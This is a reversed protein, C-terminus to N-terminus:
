NMAAPQRRELLERAAAFDLAALAQDIADLDDGLWPALAVRHEALLDLVGLDGAAVGAQLRALVGPATQQPRAPSPPPQHLAQAEALLLQLGGDLQAGFGDIWEQELAQGARLRQEGVRGWQALRECALTAALGKFAHLADLAQRMALPQAAMWRRLQAPLPRAQAAFSSATRLYLDSRGQFRQLGAQLDLGQALARQQAAADISLPLPARVAIAEAGDPRVPERGTLRLVWAVLEAVEFPKSLHADMGAQLCAERDSTLANASLAIIPLSQLEPRARIARAASLGDLVPMQLDMLVLDFRDGDLMELAEAGHGATSIRAGEGELLEQAVQRNAANDEVLLLHLGALPAGRRAVQEPPRPPAQLLARLSGACVPKGIVADPPPLPAAAGAIVCRPLLGLPALRERLRQVAQWGSEGPLQAAVWLLQPAVGGDILRLAEDGDRAEHLTVGEARLLAAFAARSGAHPEVLLVRPPEDLTAPRDDLLPLELAFSFCSGRGLRSNVHLEAGMLRLLQRCITLGLGSGGYRRTTSPEAQNFGEFIAELQEDAIGIGSDRVEFLLRVRGEAAPARRLRLLVEGQDTFKIANGLLNILVQQLRLADGLVQSPLGPDLDYVLELSKGEAQVAMLVAVRRLLSDLLLPRSELNLKGAEIKSFDLIANLLELLSRAAGEAKGLHDRQAPQLASGRLLRLMGLMANLPTRIEHSMTALFRGKAESAAHARDREIALLANLAETERLVAKQASIDHAMVIVGRVEGAELDPEAHLLWSMAGEELEFRLSQGDFAPALRDAALPAAPAALPSGILADPECGYWAAYARNAFLCRRDASWYALRGPLTDAALRLFRERTSRELEAARDTAALLLLGAVRGDQLPTCRLELEAADRQLPRLRLTQPESANLAHRLAERDDAHLLALAQALPQRMPVAGPAWGLLDLAAESWHLEASQPLYSFSAGRVLALAQRDQQAAEAVALAQVQEQQVSCISGALAQVAGDPDRRVAAGRLELWQWSGAGDSFRARLQLADGQGRLLRGVAARWAALDDPHFRARLEAGDLDAADGASLGLLASARRDLQVRDGEPLWTWGGARQGDLQAQLRELAESQQQLQRMLPTLEVGLALWRLPEQMLPQLRLQWWAIEGGPRRRAVRAQWPRGDHLQARAQAWFAPSHLDGALLEFGAQEHVPRGSLLALAPSGEIVRGDADCVALQTLQELLLRRQQHLDREARLAALEAAHAAAAEAAAAALAESEQAAAAAREEAQRLSLLLGGTVLALLVSILVGAIMWTPQLPWGLQPLLQSWWLPALSLGLGAGLVLLAGALPHM